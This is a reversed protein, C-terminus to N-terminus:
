KCKRGLRLPIAEACVRAVSVEQTAHAQRWLCLQEATPLRYGRPAPAVSYEPLNLLIPFEGEVLWDFKELQPGLSLRLTAAGFTYSNDFHNIGLSERGDAIRSRHAM